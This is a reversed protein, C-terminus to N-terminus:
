VSSTQYFLRRIPELSETFSRPIGLKVGTDTRRKAALIHYERLPKTDCFEKITRTTFEVRKEPNKCNLLIGHKLVEYKLLLSSHNLIVLDVSDFKVADMVLGMMRIRFQWDARFDVSDSVHIAVDVDSIKTFPGKSLSGFAYAFDVEEISQFLESLIQIIQQKTKIM